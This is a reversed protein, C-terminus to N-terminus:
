QVSKDGSAQYFGAFSGGLMGGSRGYNKWTRPQLGALWGVAVCTSTRQLCGEVHLHRLRLLLSIRTPAAQKELASSVTM